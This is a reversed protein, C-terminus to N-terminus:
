STSSAPQSSKLICRVLQQQALKTNPMDQERERFRDPTACTALEAPLRYSHEHCETNFHSYTANRRTTPENRLATQLHFLPHTWQHQHQSGEEKKMSNTSFNRRAADPERRELRVVVHSQWARQQERDDVSPEHSQAHMNMYTVSCDGLSRAGSGWRGSLRGPPPAPTRTRAGKAYM